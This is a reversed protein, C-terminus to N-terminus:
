SVDLALHNISLLLKLAGQQTLSKLRWSMEILRWYASGISRLPASVMLVLFIASCSLTQSMALVFVLSIYLHAFSIEGGNFGSGFKM